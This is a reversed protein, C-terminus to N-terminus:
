LWEALLGKERLRVRLRSLMVRLVNSDCKLERAAAATTYGEARLEILRREDPNLENLVREFLENLAVRETPEDSTPGIAQIMPLNGSNLEQVHKEMLRRRRHIQQWNEAVKRQVLRVALGVLKQPDSPDFQDGRLMELLAVRVSQAVDVSDFYPRMLPGLMAKATRLIEPGCLDILEAIASDDNNRFRELLNEFSEQDVDVEVNIM